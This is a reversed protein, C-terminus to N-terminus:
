EEGKPEKLLEHLKIVSKFDCIEKVAKKDVFSKKHYKNVEEDIMRYYDKEQEKSEAEILEQEMM